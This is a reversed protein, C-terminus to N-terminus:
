PHTQPHREKEGEARRGVKLETMKLPCHYSSTIEEDLAAWGSLGLSCTCVYVCVYCVYWVHACVCACWVICWVHLAEGDLVPRAREM